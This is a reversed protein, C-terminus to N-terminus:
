SVTVCGHPDRPEPVGPGCQRAHSRLAPRAARDTVRLTEARRFDMNWWFKVNM